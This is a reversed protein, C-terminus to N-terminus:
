IFGLKQSIEGTYQVLSLGIERCLDENMRSTPGSISIAAFPMNNHNLIPAAICHLGIELEEFDEAYGKKKINELSEILTKKDCITNSTFKTLEMRSIKDKLIESSLNALIAKGVATCHLPQRGGVLTSIAISLPSEVKELYIVSLDHLIVLNATEHYMNVLRELYPVVIHRLSSNVKTGLRFLKLGLKYKGSNDNKELIGNAYLTSILGFTTSKHLGVLKSIETVGLEENNEFCNLIKIARDVSQIIKENDLQIGGLM